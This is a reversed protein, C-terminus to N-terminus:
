RASGAPPCARLRIEPIEAITLRRGGLEVTRLKELFAAGSADEVGGPFDVFAFGRSLGTSVNLVIEVFGVHVGLHEFADRVSSQTVDAPLGGVFFRDLM